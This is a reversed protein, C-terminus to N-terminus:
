ENDIFMADGFSFFRYKEKVAINYANLINERGALASVLRILTSKPLHFNTILADIGKFKFGPYIFISTWGSAEEFSNRDKMITELTRCTTTGCAIIRGGNKRVYNLTDVTNRAFRSISKTLLLDFKGKLADEIMQMFDNRKYDQTGSIGEDAYVKTPIWKPNSKMKETYYQLQSQYSNRQDEMDTSVRAYAAVRIPGDIVVGRSRDIRGEVKNIIQVEAM